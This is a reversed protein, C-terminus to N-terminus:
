TEEMNYGLQEGLARTQPDVPGPRTAQRWAWALSPDLADREHLGPDGPGDVMRRGQYPTLTAPHFPVGLLGCTRRMVAEPATVLDEYYVRLWPGRHMGQLALINQHCQIWHRQAQEWPDGAQDRAMAAMRRRLYSEAVALPHRLLHLIAAEPHHAHLRELTQMSEAYSPSKDVLLAPACLARLRADAQETRLGQARWGEARRQAEEFTGGELELLARPLGQGFHASPLRQAREELSEYMWLHLEPPAFLEPHGALMVRLLTSGSRASSLVFAVPARRRLLAPATAPAKAQPADTAAQVLLEHLQRPTQRHQVEHIYLSLGLRQGLDDLWWPAQQGRLVEQDPTPPQPLHLAEQLYRQLWPLLQGPETRWGEPPPPAQSRQDTHQAWAQALGAPTPKDLLLRVPLQVGQERRLRAMLQLALLSHGGLAFFDQHPDIDEIGFSRRWAGLVAELRSTPAAAGTPAEPSPARRAPTPAQPLLQRPDFRQRLRPTPPLWLRAQPGQDRHLAEQDLPHGLTWLRAAQQLWHLAPQHRDPPLTSATPPPAQGLQHARQRGSAVLAEDAGLNLWTSPSRLLTEWSAGLRVPQTLHRAWTGPDMAEQPSMWGGSTNCLLAAQPARRQAAAFLQRVAEEVPAALATHVPRDIPMARWTVGEQGLRGRLVPWAEELCAVACMRAHHHIAVHVGALGWAEIEEAGAGVALVRARPLAELLRARRLVLLCGEQVSFVGASTAAALAGLSHGMCRSPALGHARWLADLAMLAAFHASHALPLDEPPAITRRLARRMPDERTPEQDLGLHDRLDQGLEPLLTHACLDLTDRLAPQELYLASLLGPPWPAFGEFCFALGPPAASAQAQQQARQALLQLAQQTSHAVLAARHPGSPRGRRLASAVRALPQEPHAQLHRRLQCTWQELAPASHASWALLAPAHVAPRFGEQPPAEQLIACANTGGMGLSSVLARRPHQGPAWPQGQPLLHLPSRELHPSPSAVGPTAPLWRHHLALAAKLVGCLGAAADTHGTTAKLSGVPLPDRRQAFVQRLADAEVADGLPTGTGHSEIYGIQEPRLGALHLAERLTAAQGASSPASLSARDAGDNLVATSLLLALCDDGQLDQARRLVLAAAADGGVTGGARADMPLCRGRRDRIGGDQWLDGTADPIAVSAAAVIAVDVEHTLLSQAALHLAVLSSSCASQVMVAPGRLDLKWAARGAALDLLAGDAEWADLEVGQRQLWLRWRTASLSGFFGTRGRAQPCALGAVELAEQSCELLLRQQPELLLAERPSFGFADAAFAWPEELRGRTHVYDPHTFRAPDEGWARLAEPTSPALASHGQRLLEWLAELSPAGPFRGSAGVLALQQTVEEM